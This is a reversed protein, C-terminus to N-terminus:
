TLDKRPRWPFFSSTERQYARYAEARSRLSQGESPPIGTVRTLLIWMLLPVIFSLWFGESGYAFFPYSCWLVWEFFYNPHRSYRWLGQDMVRQKSGPQKKFDSFQKDSLWVGFLGICFVLLGVSDTWYFELREFSFAMGWALIVASLFNFCYLLAFYYDAKNGWRERYFRYRSDEGKYRILRLLILSGLRLSWFCVLSVMLLPRWYLGLGEGSPLWGGLRQYLHGVTLLLISACWLLDVSTANRYKRQFFFGALFMLAVLSIFFDM